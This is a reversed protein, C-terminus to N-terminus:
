TFGVIAQGAGFEVDDFDWRLVYRVETATNINIRSDPFAVSVIEIRDGIVAVTDGDPADADSYDPPLRVSQGLFM